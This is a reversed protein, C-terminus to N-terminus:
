GLEDAFRWVGAAIEASVRIGSREFGCNCSGIVIAPVSGLGHEKHVNRTELLVVRPWVSQGLQTSERPRHRPPQALRYLIVDICRDCQGGAIM